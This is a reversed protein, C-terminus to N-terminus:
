AIKRDPRLEGHFIGAVDDSQFLAVIVEEGGFTKMTEIISRLRHCSGKVEDEYAQIELIDNCKFTQGALLSGIPRVAVRRNLRNAEQTQIKLYQEGYGQTVLNEPPIGFQEVSRALSAAAALHSRGAVGQM